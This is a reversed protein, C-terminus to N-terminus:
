ATLRLINDCLRHYVRRDSPVPIRVHEAKRATRFDSPQFDTRDAVYQKGINGRLRLFRINRDPCSKTQKQVARIDCVGNRCIRSAHVFRRRLTQNRNKQNERVTRIGDFRPVTGSHKKFFGQNRYLVM